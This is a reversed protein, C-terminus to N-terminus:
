TQFKRKISCSSLYIDFLNKNFIKSTENLSNMKVVGQSHIFDFGGVSLGVHSAFGNKGFFHLDGPESDDISIESNQFFVKQQNADRPVMFGCVHLVSQVLGACDFGLSTKGGWKYPIGLLNNLIKVM